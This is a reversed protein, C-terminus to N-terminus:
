RLIDLGGRHAARLSGVEVALIEGWTWEGSSNVTGLRTLPVGHREAIGELSEADEPAVSTRDGANADVILATHEACRHRRRWPPACQPACAGGRPQM